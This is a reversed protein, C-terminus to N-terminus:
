GFSRMSAFAARENLQGRGGKKGDEEKEEEMSVHARSMGGGPGQRMKVYM